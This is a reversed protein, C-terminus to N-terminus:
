IDYVGGLAAPVDGRMVVDYSFKMNGARSIKVYAGFVGAEHLLRIGTRSLLEDISGAHATALFPIGCNNASVLECAEETDGIEDCVILQPNMVRTAIEIGRGKPYGSLIDICMDHENMDFALEGRSDIIVVRKSNEGMSLLKCVGRLVTTKGVGPSSYILVGKRYELRSLLTCIQHGVSFTKHPIRICLSSIDYVGIIEGGQTTAKGVVGVRVGGPLSIYGKNITDSYAYLSGSCMGTLTSDIETGDLITNLVLNRGSLTLSARRERRLRIEEIREGGSRRRIEELLRYPLSSVIVPPIDDSAVRNRRMEIIQM